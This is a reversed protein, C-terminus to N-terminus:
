SEDGGGKEVRQKEPRYDPCRRVFPDDKDGTMGDCCQLFQPNNRLCFTNICCVGEAREAAYEITVTAEREVFATCRPGIDSYILEHPYGEDGLPFCFSAALVECLPWGDADPVGHACRFCWRNMFEIGETGNSPRYKRM